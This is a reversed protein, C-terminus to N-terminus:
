SFVVCWVSSHSLRSTQDKKRHQASRTSQEIVARSQRIHLLNKKSNRIHKRKATSNKKTHKVKGRGDDDHLKICEDFHNELAAFHSIFQQVHKLYHFTDARRIDARNHPVHRASKKLQAAYRCPLHPAFRPFLTMQQRTEKTPHWNGSKLGFQLRFIFM